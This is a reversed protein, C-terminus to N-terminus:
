SRVARRASERKHHERRRANGALRRRERERHAAQAQKTRNWGLLKPWLLWICTALALWMGFRTGIRDTFLALSSFVVIPIAAAFYLVTSLGRPVRYGRNSAWDTAIGVCLAIVCFLAPIGLPLTVDWAYVIVNRPFGELSGTAWPFAISLLATGAPLLSGVLEPLPKGKSAAAQLAPAKPARRPGNSGSTRIAAALSAATPYRAEPDAALAKTVVRDFAKPAGRESPLAFRGVPLEGTLMEYLVVGLAYVDARRDAREGRIQEPAMYHPTGLATGTATLSVSGSNDGAITALGFDAIRARGEGDLLVNEPKLDRHVIGEDHAYQVAECLQRVIPEIEDPPMPGGTLLARLDAGDVFDMLLFYHREEPGDTTGFDAIRVIGPHDLRAMAQAEREFRAAFAPDNADPPTLIKLAMERGLKRHRVRYVAGMGGRGIPEELDLDPFAPALEDISPMGARTSPTSAQELACAPCLGEAAGRAIPQQRCRPCLPSPTNM